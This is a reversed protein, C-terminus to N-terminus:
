RSLKQLGHKRIRRYLSARTLGLEEAARSVNGGYRLLSQRVAEKEVDELSRPGGPAGPAEGGGLLFDEPQLVEARSIVVAREVSHKLERVNGPWDYSALRDAVDKPAKKWPKDYKRCYFRHFHELLLPIDGRRDRLPPVRIEITNIRYFLDQRFENKAVMAQVPMNTACILRIDVPRPRNAGVPTVERDELARLLKSQAAPSLNGIEDLFLTGGSANELRGVRDRAADTFAGKVHGFLESEFLTEPISGVDVGIFVKDARPSGRHIARAVLEKGTGNEGLILVNAETPAVKSIMDHVAKMAPSQGIMDGLRRDMDSVLQKQQVQLREVELRTERLQLAMSLTGLLKENKWPKLIFDAAGGKIAKIALEIDGFATVPIVMIDPDRSLIDQLWRLGEGGDTSERTFNMDLFVADFSEKKMHFPINRPDTEATVAYGNERLLMNMALLVDADDDIVLIKPHNMGADEAEDNM